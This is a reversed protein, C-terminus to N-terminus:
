FLIEDSHILCLVEFSNREQDHKEQLEHINENGCENCYLEGNIFDLSNEDIKKFIIM